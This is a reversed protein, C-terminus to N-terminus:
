KILEAEDLVCVHKYWSNNVYHYKNKYKKVKEIDVDKDNMRVYLDILLHIEGLSLDCLNGFRDEIVNCKDYIKMCNKFYDLHKKECYIASLNEKCEYFADEDIKNVSDPIVITNIYANHFAMYNIDTVSNPVVFNYLYCTEFMFDSIIKIQCSFGEFNADTNSFAGEGIETIVNPLGGFNLNCCEMFARDGIKKLNKSWKINELSKSGSFADDEIEVITDPLDIATIDKCSFGKEKVKLVPLNNYVEPVVVNKDVCKGYAVSYGLVEGNKTKVEFYELGCSAKKTDSGM